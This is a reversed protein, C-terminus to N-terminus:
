RACHTCFVFYSFPLFIAQDHYYDKGYGAALEVQVNASAGRNSFHRAEEYHGIDTHWNGMCKLLWADKIVRPKLSKKRVAFPSLATYTSFFHASSVAFIYVFQLKACCIHDGWKQGPM